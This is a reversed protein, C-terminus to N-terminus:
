SLATGHLSGDKMAPQHDEAEADACRKRERGYDREGMSAGGVRNVMLRLGTKFRWAANDPSM